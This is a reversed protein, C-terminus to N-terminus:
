LTDTIIDDVRLMTLQRRHGHKRKYGQRRKKKFVIVQLTSCLHLAITLAARLCSAPVGFCGCKCTPVKKEKTHEEVSVLVQLWGCM